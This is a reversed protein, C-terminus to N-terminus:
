LYGEIKLQNVFLFTMNTYKILKMLSYGIENIKWQSVSFECIKLNPYFKWRHIWLTIM